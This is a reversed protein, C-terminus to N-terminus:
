VLSFSFNLQEVDSFHSFTYAADRHHFVIFDNLFINIQMPSIIHPSPGLDLIKHIYFYAYLFGLLFHAGFILLPLRVM